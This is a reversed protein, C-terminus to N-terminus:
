QVLESESQSPRDGEQNQEQVVGDIAQKFQEVGTKLTQLLNTFSQKVEETAEVFQQAKEKLERDSTATQCRDRLKDPLTDFDDSVTVGQNELYRRFSKMRDRAIEIQEPNESIAGQLIDQFGNFLSTLGDKLAGPHNQRQEPAILLLPIIVNTTSLDDLSVFNQEESNITKNTTQDPLIEVLVNAEIAEEGNTQIHSLLSSLLISNILFELETTALKTCWTNDRTL